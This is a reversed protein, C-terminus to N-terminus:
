GATPRNIEYRSLRPEADMMLESPNACRYVQIREGLAGSAENGTQSDVM